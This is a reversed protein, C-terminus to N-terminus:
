QKPISMSMRGKKNKKIILVGEDPEREKIKVEEYVVLEGSERARRIQEARRLELAAKPEVKWAVREPELARIEAKIVQDDRMNRNEFLVLPGIPFNRSRDIIEVPDKADVIIPAPGASRSRGIRSRPPSLERREYKTETIEVHGRGAPMDFVEERREEVIDGGESRGGSM